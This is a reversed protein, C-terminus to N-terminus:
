PDSENDYEVVIGECSLTSIGDKAVTVGCSGSTLIPLPTEEDQNDRFGDVIDELLM